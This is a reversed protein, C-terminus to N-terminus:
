IHGYAPFLFIYLVSDTKDLNLNKLFHRRRTLLEFSSNLDSFLYIIGLVNYFNKQKLKFIVFLSLCNIYGVSLPLKM